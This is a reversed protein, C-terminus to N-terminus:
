VFPKAKLNAGFGSLFSDDDEDVDDRGGDEGCDGGDRFVYNRGGDKGVTVVMLEVEDEWDCGDGDSDGDDGGGDEWDM